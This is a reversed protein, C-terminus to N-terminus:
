GTCCSFVSPVESAVMVRNPTTLLTPSRPNWSRLNFVTLVSTVLVLVRAWNKGSWYAWLVAYGILILVTFIIFVGRAHPASYNIILWGMANCVAMLITTLVIGKPPHSMTHIEKNMSSHMVKGM